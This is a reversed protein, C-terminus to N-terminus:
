TETIQIGDAPIWGLMGISIWPNETRQDLRLTKTPKSGTWVRGYLLRGEGMELFPLALGEAMCGM